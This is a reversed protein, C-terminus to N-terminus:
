PLVLPPNQIQNQGQYQFLHMYPVKHPLQAYYELGLLRLRLLNIQSLRTSRVSSPILVPLLLKSRATRSPRPEM